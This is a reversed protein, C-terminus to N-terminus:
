SDLGWSILGEVPPLGCCSIPLSGARGTPRAEGTTPEGHRRAQSHTSHTRLSPPAEATRFLMYQAPTRTNARGQGSTPVNATSPAAAMHSGSGSCTARYTIICYKMNPDPAAEWWATIRRYSVSQTANPLTGVATATAFGDSRGVGNHAM